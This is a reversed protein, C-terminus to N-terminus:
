LYEYYFSSNDFLSKQLYIIITNRARKLSTEQQVWYSSFDPTITAM